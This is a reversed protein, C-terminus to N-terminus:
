FDSPNLALAGLTFGYFNVAIWQCRLIQAGGAKGAPYFILFHDIHEPSCMRHVRHSIAFDSLKSTM